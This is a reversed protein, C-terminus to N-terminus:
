CRCPPSCAKSTSSTVKHATEGDARVKKTRGTSARSHVPASGPRGGLKQPTTFAPLVDTEYASIEPEFGSGAVMKPITDGPCATTFSQTPCAPSTPKVGVGAGLYAPTGPAFGPSNAAERLTITVAQTARSFPSLAAWNTQVFFSMDRDAAVLAVGFLHSVEPRKVLLM